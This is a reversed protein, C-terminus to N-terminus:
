GSGESGEEILRHTLERLVEANRLVLDFYARQDPNLEGMQPLGELGLFLANLPTRLDHVLHRTKTRDAEVSTRMASMDADMNQLRMRLTIEAMVQRAFDRLIELERSAWCRPKTDIACFSGITYGDETMLPIGAYAVVGMDAVAGNERVLPHERADEVIFPEGVAAVFQCLSHTLPTERKEAVAAPLGCQSKFFQRDADVLSMLVIPVDLAKAALNTILDFLHEPPSDLLGTGRLAALRAQELQEIDIRPRM